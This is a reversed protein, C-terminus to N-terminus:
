AAGGDAKSRRTSFFGVLEPEQEMLVRSYHARFSNDLKLSSGQTEIDTHWRVREVLAAIGLRKRGSRKAELAFRRLLRFVEPNRLHFERFAQWSAPEFEFRSQRTSPSETSPMPDRQTGVNRTIGQGYAERGGFASLADVNARSTDVEPAM